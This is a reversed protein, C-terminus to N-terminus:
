RTSSECKKHSNLLTKDLDIKAKPRELTIIYRINGQDDTMKQWEVRSAKNIDKALNVSLFDYKHVEIFISAIVLIISCMIKISSISCVM